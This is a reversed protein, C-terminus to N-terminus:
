IDKLRYNFNQLFSAWRHEKKLTDANTVLIFQKKARTIAVNMRQPDKLFGIKGKKNSRVTSLIIVEKESGQYADITSVDLKNWKNITFEKLLKIQLAYPSIVGIDTIKVGNRTLKRIIEIIKNLEIENYLSNDKSRKEISTETNVLVLEVQTLESPKVGEINALLKDAIKPAAILKSQYFTRSPWEMIKSNMRYQTYLVVISTKLSINNMLREMLSISLSKKANINRTMITPPLQRPDGALILKQTHPIISWCNSELSQGAEDIITLTFFNMPLHGLLTKNQSNYHYDCATLTGFIANSNLLLDEKQPLRTTRTLYYLSYEILKHNIKGPHGIRILVNGDKTTSQQRIVKEMLNDVAVNAASCILVRGGRSIEQQIIEVLTTTKGTGPPGHIICLENQNITKTVAHKQETNLKTNKFNINIENESSTPYELGLLINRLKTQATHEQFINTNSLQYLSRLQFFNKYCKKSFIYRTACKLPLSNLSLITFESSSLINTIIGSMDNNVVMLNDKIKLDFTSKTKLSVSWSMDKNKVCNMVTAEIKVQPNENQRIKQAKIEERLPLSHKYIFGSIKERNISQNM